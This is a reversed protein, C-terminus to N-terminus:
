ESEKLSGCSMRYIGAFIAALIFNFPMLVNLPTPHGMTYGAQGFILVTEAGEAVAALLALILAVRGRLHLALAFLTPVLCSVIPLLVYLRPIYTPHDGHEVITERLYDPITPLYSIMALLAAVTMLVAAAKPKQLILFLGSVPFLLYFLASLFERMEWGGDSIIRITNGGFILALPLSYLILFVGALATWAKNATKM